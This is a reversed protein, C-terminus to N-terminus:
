CQPRRARPILRRIATRPVERASALGWRHVLLRVCFALLGGPSARRGAARAGSRYLGVYEQALEIMSRSHRALLRDTLPETRHVRARQFAGLVDPPVPADLTTVLAHLARHVPLTLRRERTDHALRDWEISGTDRTMILYADAM